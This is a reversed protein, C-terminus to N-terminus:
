PKERLAQDIRDLAENTLMSPVFQQLARLSMQSGMGIQPSAILDPLERELIARARPDGLLDGLLSQTSLAGSKQGAQAQSALFTYPDATAVIPPLPSLQGKRTAVLVVEKSPLRTRVQLVRADAKSVVQLQREDITLTYGNPFNAPPMVIETLGGRQQRGDPGVTSFIYRLMGYHGDFELRVPTGATVRPYPRALARLTAERNDNGAAPLDPDVIPAFPGRAWALWPVLLDDLEQAQAAWEVPDNTFGWETNLVASGTKEASALAYINGRKRIEALTGYQHFSLGRLSSGAPPTTMPIGLAGQLMFPEVFVITEPAVAAIAKGAREYFPALLERELEPCNAKTPDPQNCRTGPFPENMIDIGFVTSDDRFRRAVVTLADIYFDQVGRSTAPVTHNTWFNDFATQIAPDGFYGAPFPLKKPIHEGPFTAWDPFGRVGISANYEDQHFDLLVRVGARRYDAVANAIVALYTEDIVGPRPMVRSFFTVLRVGNFGQDAMLQPTHADPAAPGEDSGPLQLNAGRLM